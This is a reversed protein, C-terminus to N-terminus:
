RRRVLWLITTWKVISIGCAVVLVQLLESYGTDPDIQYRTAIFLMAAFTIGILLAWSTARILKLGAQYGGLGLAVGLLLISNAPIGIATWITIGLVFHPMMWRLLAANGRLQEFEPSYWVVYDSWLGAIALLAAFLLAVWRRRRWPIRRKPQLYVSQGRVARLVADAVADLGEDTSIAVADALTPSYRLIFDKDIGHWVPLILTRGDSVQRAVLGALERKTWGKLFFHKSLIVVGFESQALGEDIKRDLSDGLRLENEDLWITLGSKGLLQALPRAVSTKDEGAHSIFVDWSM